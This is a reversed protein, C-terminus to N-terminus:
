IREVTFAPLPTLTKYLVGANTRLLFLKIWGLQVMTNPTYYPMIAYKGEQCAKTHGTQM